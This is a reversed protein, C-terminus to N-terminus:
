GAPFGGDIRGFDEQIEHITKRAIIYEHFFWDRFRDWKAAQNGPM